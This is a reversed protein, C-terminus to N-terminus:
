GSVIANVYHDIRAPGSVQITIAVLDCRWLSDHYEPHDSVYWEGAALLKRAKAPSIAEEARGAREGRRTKVEVFVLEDGDRMILDIEGARCRWNRDVYHYGGSELHRRALQEGFEGLQARRDPTGL